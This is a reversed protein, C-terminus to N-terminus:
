TPQVVFASLVVMAANSSRDQIMLTSTSDIVMQVGNVCRIM